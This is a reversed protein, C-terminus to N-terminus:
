STAYLIFLEKSLSRIHQFTSAWNNLTMTLGMFCLISIGMSTRPWPVELPEEGVM